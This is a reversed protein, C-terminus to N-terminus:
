RVTVSKALSRPQDINRNLENALYFAFYQGFGLHLLSGLVDDIAPLQFDCSEDHGITVVYGNRAEIEKINAHTLDYLGKQSKPPLHAFTVFRDDILSLTGHKFFGAAMGEAHCYTIEKLKLANELAVPYYIGRGIHFFHDKSKVSKALNEIKLKFSENFTHAYLESFDALDFSGNFM